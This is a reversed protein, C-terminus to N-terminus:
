KLTNIMSVLKAMTMDIEHYNDALKRCLQMIEANTVKKGEYESSAKIQKEDFGSVVDNDFFVGVNVSLRQAVKELDSAQMKNNNICRHLNAESMGIDSALKRLGGEYTESLKRILNLNM